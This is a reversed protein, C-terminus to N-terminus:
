ARDGPCRGSTNLDDPNEFTSRSRRSPDQRTRSLEVEDVGDVLQAVPGCNGLFEGTVRDEVAWLSFGDRAEREFAREIWARSEDRRFPHPCFRMHEPDSQIAHLADLDSLDDAFRRLRLRPTLFPESPMM